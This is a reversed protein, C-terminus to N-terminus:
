RRNSPADERMAPADAAGPLVYDPHYHMPTPVPCGDLSRLVAAHALPVRGNFATRQRSVEREIVSGCRAPVQYLNPMPEAKPVPPAGSVAAAAAIAALIM